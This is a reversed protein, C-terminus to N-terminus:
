SEVVSALEGLSASPPALNMEVVANALDYWLGEDFEEHLYDEFALKLNNGGMPPQGGWLSGETSQIHSAVLAFHNIRSHFRSGLEDRIILEAAKEEYIARAEQTDKTPTIAALAAAFSGAEPYIEYLRRKYLSEYLATGRTDSVVIVTIGDRTITKTILM